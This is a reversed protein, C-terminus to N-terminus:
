LLLLVGFQLGYHNYDYACVPTEGRAIWYRDQIDLLEDLNESVLFRGRVLTEFLVEEFDYKSFRQSQGLLSQSLLTGADTDVVFLSGTSANYIATKGVVDSVVFNYSSPKLLTAM